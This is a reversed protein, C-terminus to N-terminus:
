YRFARVGSKLVGNREFVQFVPCVMTLACFLKLFLETMTGLPGGVGTGWVKLVTGWFIPWLEGSPFWPLGQQIRYLHGGSTPGRPFCMFSVHATLSLHTLHTLICFSRIKPFLFLNAPPPLWGCNVIRLSLSWAMRGILLAGGRTGGSRRASVPRHQLALSERSDVGAM